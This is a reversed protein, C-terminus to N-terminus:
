ADYDAHGDRVVLGLREQSQPICQFPAYDHLNLKVQYNIEMQRWLSFILALSMIFVPLLEPVFYALAAFLWINIFDGTVPRYLFVAFRMSFCLVLVMTIM